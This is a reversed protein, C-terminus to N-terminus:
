FVLLQGDFSFAFPVPPSGVLQPDDAILRRTTGDAIAGVSLGTLLPDSDHRAVAFRSGDASLIAQTLPGRMIVRVDGSEPRLVFLTGDTPSVRVLILLTRGDASASLQAGPFGPEPSSATYTAVEAARRVALDLMVIRGPWSEVYKFDTPVAAPRATLVVAQATTSRSATPTATPTATTGPTSTIAPTALVATPEATPRATYLVLGGLITLVAVLAVRWRM